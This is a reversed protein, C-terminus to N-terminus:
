IQLNRLKETKIQLAPVNCVRLERLKKVVKVFLVGEDSELGFVLVAGSEDGDFVKVLDHDGDLAMQQSFRYSYFAFATEELPDDIFSTVCNPIIKLGGGM